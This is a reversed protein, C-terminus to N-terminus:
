VLEVLPSYAPLLPDATLLRLPEQLCQAVLLRDFPDNHIAPLTAVGAAHRGSVPLEIFGNLAIEAVLDAGGTDLKGVTSKIAAEWVSAASVYVRDAEAIRQRISAKLRPSGDLFWLFIHTDLLLNM